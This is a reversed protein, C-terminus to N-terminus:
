RTRWVGEPCPMPSVAPVLPSMMCATEGTDGLAESITGFLAVVVGPTSSVSSPRLRGTGVARVAGKPM